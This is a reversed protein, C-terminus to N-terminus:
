LRKLCLLEDPTLERFDGISLTGDLKLGGIKVRRLYLVPCGVGCLMRRVQHKKGESVTIYGMFVPERDRKKLRKKDKDTLYETVCEVTSVDTLDIKAASTVFDSNKYIKMGSCVTERASETLTGHAIFFYTKEVGRNPSLLKFCLEGDDTFLLLGETDKDLRGVPFIKDRLESPVYEMVTKHRLDTRATICGRPKNLMYYKSM